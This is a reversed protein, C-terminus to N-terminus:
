LKCNCSSVRNSTYDNINILKCGQFKNIENELDTKKYLETNNNASGASSADVGYKNMIDLLDNSTDTTNDTTDVNAFASLQNTKQGLNLNINM